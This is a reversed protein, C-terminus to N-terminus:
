ERLRVRLEAVLRSVAGDGTKEIRGIDGLDQLVAAEQPLVVVLPDLESLGHDRSGGVAGVLPGAEDRLLSPM